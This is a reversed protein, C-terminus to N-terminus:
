VNSIVSRVISLVMYLVVGFLIVGCVYEWDVGAMGAAVGMIDTDTALPTMIPQYQGFIQEILTRM